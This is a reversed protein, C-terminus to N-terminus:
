IEQAGVIVGLRSVEAQAYLAREPSQPRMEGPCPWAPVAHVPCPAPGGVLLGTGAFGEYGSLCLCAPLPEGSFEGALEVGCRLGPRRCDSDQEGLVMGREFAM